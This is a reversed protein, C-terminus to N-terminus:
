SAPKQLVMAQVMTPYADGVVFENLHDAVYAVDFNPHGYIEAPTGVVLDLGSREVLDWMNVNTGWKNEMQTTFPVLDLFLDVTMVFRGGPALVRGIDDFLQQLEDEPIHEITSISLAVDFSDDALDADGFKKPLLEVNTDTARKMNDLSRTDVRWGKGSAALGPDLNTVLGGEAALIFQMGALSGGIDLIRKGAPDGIQEHVWPYEHHRTDNNNQFSFAGFHKVAWPQVPVLRPMGRALIRGMLTGDPAGHNRNWETYSGPIPSRALM